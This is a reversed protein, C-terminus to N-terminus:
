WFRFYFVASQHYLVLHPGPLYIFGNWCAHTLSLRDWPFKTDVQFSQAPWLRPLATYLWASPMSGAYKGQVALTKRSWLLASWGQCTKYVSPDLSPENSLSTHLEPLTPGPHQFTRKSQGSDRLELLRTNSHQLMPSTIPCSCQRIQVINNRTYVTYQSLMLQRTLNNVSSMLVAKALTPCLLRQVYLNELCPWSQSM